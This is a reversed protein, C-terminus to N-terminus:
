FFENLSVGLKKSTSNKNVVGWFIEILKFRSLGGPLRFVELDELKLREFLLFNVNYEGLLRYKM